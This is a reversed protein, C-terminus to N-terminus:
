IGLNNCVNEAAMQEALKKSFGKGTGAIVNEICLNVTYFKEHGKGEEGALEFRIPKKERQSWEIMKSKFDNDTKELEDLDVHTKIIRNLVFDKATQYNKDLYIAGILAELADGNMSKFGPGADNIRLIFTEVGLKVALKNIHQRSVLRSRMKTLFGEDRFPFKTFLFHAVVSGLIADGLFELRENSNSVGSKIHQSVSSHRFAMKYLELNEPYFGCINKLAERLKKDEQSLNRWLPFLRM